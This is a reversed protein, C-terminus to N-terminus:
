PLTFTTAPTHQQLHQRENGLPEPDRLGQAQAVIYVIGARWAWRAAGGGTLAWRVAVSRASRRALARRRLGPRWGVGLLCRRGGLHVARSPLTLSM